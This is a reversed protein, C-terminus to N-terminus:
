RLSMGTWGKGRVFNFVHELFWCVSGVMFFFAAVMFSFFIYAGGITYALFTRTVKHM